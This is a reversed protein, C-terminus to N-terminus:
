PPAAPRPWKDSDKIRGADLSSLRMDHGDDDAAKSAHAKARRWRYLRWAALAVVAVTGVAVAVFVLVMVVPPRDEGGDDGGAVVVMPPPPPPPPPLAPVRDDWVGVAWGVRALGRYLKCTSNRSEHISYACEDTTECMDACAAPSSVTTTTTTTTTNTDQTSPLLQQAPSTPLPALLPYDPSSRFVLTVDDTEDDHLLTRLFCTAPWTAPATPAAAVGDTPSDPNGNFGLANDNNDGPTAASATTNSVDAPDDDNGIATWAWFDCRVTPDGCLTACECPTAAPVVRQAATRTVNTNAGTVNGHNDTTNIISSAASSNLM